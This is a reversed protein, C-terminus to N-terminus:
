SLNNQQIYYDANANTVKLVSVQSQLNWNSNQLQHAQRWLHSLTKM